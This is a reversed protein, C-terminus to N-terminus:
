DLKELVSVAMFAYVFVLTCRGDSSGFLDHCLFQPIKLCRALFQLFVFLLLGCGVLLKMM